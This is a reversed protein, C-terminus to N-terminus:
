GGIAGVEADGRVRTGAGGLGRARPETHTSPPCGHTSPLPLPSCGHTSHRGERALDDLEQKHDVDGELREQAAITEEEDEGTNRTVSGGSIPTLATPVPSLLGLFAHCLGLVPSPDEWIPSLSRLSLHCIGVLPHCLGM